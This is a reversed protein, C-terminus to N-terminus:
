VADFFESPLKTELRLFRPVVEEFVFPGAYSHQTHLRGMCAKVKM